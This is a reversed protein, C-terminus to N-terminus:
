LLLVYNMLCIYVHMHCMCVLVCVCVDQYKYRQPSKCLCVGLGAAGGLGLRGPSRRVRVRVEVMYGCRFGTINHPHAINAVGVWGCGSGITGEEGTLSTGVDEECM